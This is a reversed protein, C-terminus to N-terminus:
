GVAGFMRAIQSAADYAADRANDTYQWEPTARLTRGFEARTMPRALGDSSWDTGVLQDYLGKDGGLFDVKRELM